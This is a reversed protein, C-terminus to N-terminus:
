RAGRRRRWPRACTTTAAWDSTACAPPLSPARAASSADAGVADRREAAGDEAAVHVVSVAVGQRRLKLLASVLDGDVLPGRPRPRPPADAHARRHHGAPFPRATRGPPSPRRWRASCSAGAPQMRRSGVPRWDREPLLLSVAHGSRLTFAAMSGAARVATEFSSDPPEGADSAPAGSLLVTLDDESAAEMERLMLNGTKATSKWDVRSLPEGPDHPRIGRLEWADRAPLRRRGGGHRAGPDACPACSALEELRPAVTVRLPEGAPRRARALGLPDEVVAAVAPLRHVGRRAPWPGATRHPGRPHRAGRPRGAASPGGLRGTANALTVQLGPVRWGSRVRFSFTLPDGAVPREPTVRRDVQLRRSGALVLVWALATMAAFALAVLYLEWTGLVRAAVYTAAAVALLAVGRATPRTMARTGPGPHRRPPPRDGGRRRAGASGAESALIIRHGLVRPALDKVDQPVVYDRGRLVALAKAARLLAIGARPSAGLYVDRSQRTAAM